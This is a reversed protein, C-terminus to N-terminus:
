IGDMGPFHVRHRPRAATQSSSSSSAAAKAKEAKAGADSVTSASRSLAICDMLFCAFGARGNALSSPADAQVLLKDRHSDELAFQAFCVARQLYTSGQTSEFLFVYHQQWHWPV